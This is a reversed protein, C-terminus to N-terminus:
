SDTSKRFVGWEDSNYKYATEKGNKFVHITMDEQLEDAKIDRGVRHARGMDKETSPTLYNVKQGDQMFSQVVSVMYKTTIKGDIM